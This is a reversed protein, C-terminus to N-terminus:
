KRKLMWYAAVGIVAVVAVAIIIAIETTILPAEPQTPEIPAVPTEPEEPEIPAAPTPAPDVTFYTTSTSGFYSASGEFTAIIMYQGEVQPRFSYGYNGYVDTTATGIWEYHGNPDVIEIKVPVGNVDAPQEFQMYVYQMWESMDADSVVPVGNPFRAAIRYDDTGPSIDTLMGRVVVYSGPTVGTLPAEISVASPGKGIAYIRNDYTNYAAIISDGIVPTGGWQTGRINVSWVQEGTELDVAVTPAGRPLPDIPSHEDHSIVLIGNSIFAKRIPWNNSWLIESYPDDNEFTWLPNGTQVDYCYVIGGVNGSILKGDYIFEWDNMSAFGYSDLYSQRPTPGWLEAGTSLSFGYFERTERLYVVFIDEEVSIQTLHTTVNERPLDWEVNFILDGENGPELSFAWFRTPNRAVASRQDLAGVAIEGYRVHHVAGGLGTPIDNTWEIGNRADFVTGQNGRLWSGDSSVVRSSNWLSMTASNLNISYRYIEGRPGYLNAGSPVNEMSYVWRGTAADFAHWTSGQTAWLYPFAGHMNYSSWYFIQGFALRHVAGTSDVLPRRWVEEGTHLDVAVVEQEVNTGGNANFQNYYLVGNIIVPPSWKGEYADGHDYSHVGLEGSGGILGGFEQPKAWLIHPAMPMANDDKIRDNFNQARNTTHLWQGGVSAWSWLQADIPRSWYETPLPQGQYHQTPESQVILEMPESYSERMITGAPGIRNYDVETAQEPFHTRLTYTGVQTPTFVVGTGGTTDTDFPGLIETNGSPDTVEVTLDYWGPQPHAIPTPVGIHLLVQQNVGVPNPIGGIFAFTEKYGPAQAFASPLIALTSITFILTLAIASLQIKNPKKM